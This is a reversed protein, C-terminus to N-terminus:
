EQNETGACQLLNKSANINTNTITLETNYFSAPVFFNLKGPQGIPPLSYGAHMLKSAMMVLM